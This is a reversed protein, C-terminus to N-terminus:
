EYPDDQAGDARGDQVFPLEAARWATPSCGALAAFDRNLHPQDAYGASLAVEVLPLHPASRLLACAREFRLVRAAAKPPLGFETVFRASLHRRSWGVRDALAGVAIRGDSAALEHWAGRLPSPLPAPDRSAVVAGLVADCVAFREAWTPAALLRERLEVATRGLVADAEVTTDWLAGAPLGLLARSGLPTLEVTVGEQPGDAAVLAPRLQLGSVLFGYSGPRQGPDTQALVDVPAGLSVIMTLHRSPLGRHVGGPLPDTRYGVYGDVHPRLAPAPRRTVWREDGM